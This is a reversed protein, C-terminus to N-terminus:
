LLILENILAYRILETKNNVQIKAYINRKHTEVTSASINLQDGIEPLTKGMALLKLIETERTSLIARDGKQGLIHNARDTGIKKVIDVGLYGQHNLLTQFCNDIEDIDATKSLFADAGNRFCSEVTAFDSLSSLVVIKIKDGFYKRSKRIMRVGSENKLILDLILIDTQVEGKKLLELYDKVTSNAGSFEYKDPFKLAMLQIFDQIIKHDDVVYLKSKKSM